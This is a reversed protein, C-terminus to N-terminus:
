HGVAKHSELLPPFPFFFSFFFGSFFFLPPFFFFFFSSVAVAAGRGVASIKFGVSKRRTLVALLFPFLFSFSFFRLFFFFPFSSFRGPGRRAPKLVMMNEGKVVTGLLPPPLSFPTGPFPPPSFSGRV